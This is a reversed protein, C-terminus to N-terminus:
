RPERKLAHLLFGIPFLSAGVIASLLDLYHGPSNELGWGMAPFIQLAESVHALIVVVLCATGVLQLLSATTRRRLFIASSGVFLMGVPLLGVLAKILTSNM